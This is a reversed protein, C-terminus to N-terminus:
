CKIQMRYTLEGKCDIKLNNDNNQTEPAFIECIPMFNLCLSDICAYLYVM